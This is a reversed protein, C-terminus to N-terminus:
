EAGISLLVYHFSSSPSFPPLPSSSSHSYDVLSPFGWSGVDAPGQGLDVHRSSGADTTPSSSSPLPLNAELAPPTTDDALFEFDVSALISELCADWSEGGEAFPGQAVQDTLGQPNYDAFAREVPDVLGSGDSTADRDAGMAAQSLGSPGTASMADAYSRTHCQLVAMHASEDSSKHCRYTIPVDEGDLSQQWADSYLRLDERFAKRINKDQNQRSSVQAFIKYLINQFSTRMSRIVRFSWWGFFSTNLDNAPHKFPEVLILGFIQCQQLFVLLAMKEWGVKQLVAEDKQMTHQMKIDTNYQPTSSVQHYGNFM